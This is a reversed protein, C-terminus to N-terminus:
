KYAVAIIATGSAPIASNGNYLLCSFTVKLMKTYDGSLNKQYPSVSLVQFTSSGPQLSSNSTYLIGSGDTYNVTVNSLALTDIVPSSFSAYNVVCSDPYGSTVINDNYVSINGNNDKVTATVPYM